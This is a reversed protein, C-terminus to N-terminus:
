MELRIGATSTLSLEGLCARPNLEEGKCNKVDNVLLRSIADCPRSKLDFQLVRSKGVPLAGANFVLFESVKGDADFLVAEIALEDLPRALGNRFVFSIRCGGERAEANNLEVHIASKEEAKVGIDASAALGLGAVVIGAARALGCSAICIKSRAHPM